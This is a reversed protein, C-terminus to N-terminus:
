ETAVLTARLERILYRECDRAMAAQEPTERVDEQTYDSRCVELFGHLANPYEKIKVPVANDILRKAMALGQPRLDDLGCEIFITTCLGKLMEDSARLPSIFPHEHGGDPFLMQVFGNTVTGEDGFGALDTCPYVLMLAKLAIGEEKLALGTGMSLHAGASHGGVVMREPNIGYEEAHTRFYKVCDAVEDIIERIPMVDAKHYNVNVVLAPLEDALLQCFSEMYVADGALWAGGHLNFLVPLRKDATAKPRYLLTQVALKGPREVAFRQGVTKQKALLVRSKKLAELTALLAPDTIHLISSEAM